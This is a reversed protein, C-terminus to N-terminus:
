ATADADLEGVARPRAAAREDRFAPSSLRPVTSRPGSAIERNSIPPGLLEAESDARDIRMFYGCPPRGIMRGNDPHCCARGSMKAPRIEREPARRLTGDPPRRAPLRAERRDAEAAGRARPRRVRGGQRERCRDPPRTSARHRKTARAATASTTRELIGAEEFLRVTRYVTAISINPDIATARAHLAEVDPHDDVESLVRAIVRSQETMKLGREACLTELKSKQDAMEAYGVSSRPRPITSAM